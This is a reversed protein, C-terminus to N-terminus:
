QGKILPVWWHGTTGKQSWLLGTVHLVNGQWSTIMDKSDSHYIQLLNHISGHCHNGIKGGNNTHLYHRSSIVLRKGIATMNSITSPQCLIEIHDLRNIINTHLYHLYYLRDSVLQQWVLQWICMVCPRCIMVVTCEIFYADLENKQRAM